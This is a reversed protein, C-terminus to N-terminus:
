KAFFQRPFSVSVPAKGPITMKGGGNGFGGVAGMKTAGTPEPGRPIQPTQAGPPLAALFPNIPGNGSFGVGGSGGPPSMPAMQPMARPPQQTTQYQSMLAQLAQIGRPDQFFGQPINQLAQAFPNPAQFTESQDAVQQFPNSTKQVLGLSQLLGTAPGKSLVKSVLPDVVRRVEKPVIAKDVKKKLKSLFGM